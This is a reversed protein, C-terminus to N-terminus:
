RKSSRFAQLGAAAVIIMGKILLQVNSDINNLALANNLIGLLLAGALTGGVTGVGGMLSTGGIV